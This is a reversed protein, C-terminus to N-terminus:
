RARFPQAVQQHGSTPGLVFLSLPFFLLDWILEPSPQLNWLVSFEVSLHHMKTLLFYIKLVTLKM